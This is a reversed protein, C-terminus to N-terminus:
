LVISGGKALAKRIKKPDINSVHRHEQLALSAATGAAEGTQNCTVMVRIAGYAAKDAAIMRGAMILNPASAHTMTRYPIQYFTPNDDTEARWRDKIAGEPGITIQSGDLYKFVFGGGEPNHIDVRYSGNAIAGDFRVGNLVDDETLRYDAQFRRTERIGIQSPLALLVLEDRLEPHYKRAMDMIARITRRGEIEAHTLEAADACNAGFVHTEAIMRVDPAGPITANWGSDPPLDYEEHHANYLDRISIATLGRLKACTTPPQLHRDVTFPIGAHAALDGDGTADIFVRARIAIRGSKTEACVADIRGDRMLPAAYFAHLVPTIGHELVMEDLEIKLEESNMEAGCSPNDPVEIAANRKKLRDIVERTLGGIITQKFETDQLSHWVHVMSNTATGGFANSKELIVVSAGLRAARIAAFVGTCGGGVVCIDCDHLIPIERAPENLRM